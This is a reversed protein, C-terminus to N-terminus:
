VIKFYISITKLYGKFFEDRKFEYTKLTSSQNKPVPKLELEMQLYCKSTSNDFGVIKCHQLYLCETLCDKLVYAAM